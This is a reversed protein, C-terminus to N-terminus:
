AEKMGCTPRDTFGDAAARWHRQVDEPVAAAYADVPGAPAACLRGEADVTVMGLKVAPISAATIVAEEVQLVHAITAPTAPGLVGLAALVSVTAHPLRGADPADAERM